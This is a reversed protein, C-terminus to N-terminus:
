PIAWTLYDFSIKGDKSNVANVKLIGPLGQSTRYCWFGGLNLMEIPIFTPELQANRCEIDNPMQNGMKALKAGNILVLRLSDPDKKQLVLDDGVGTSLKGTDLDFGITVLLDVAGKTVTGLTPTITPSPLSTSTPSAMEIVDIRVWFPADGTPGIGFLAGRPNRLKWNSQHPGPLRPAVMDVTIDV